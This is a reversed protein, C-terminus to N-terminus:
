AARRRGPKDASGTPTAPSTPRPDNAPEPLTADVTPERPQRAPAMLRPVLFWCLAAGAAAVGIGELWRDEEAIEVVFKGLYAVGFSLLGIIVLILSVTLIESRTWASPRPRRYQGYTWASILVTAALLGAGWAANM